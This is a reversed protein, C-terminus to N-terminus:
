FAWNIKRLILLSTFWKCIVVQLCNNRFLLTSSSPFFVIKEELEWEFPYTCCKPAVSEHQRMPPVICLVFTYDVIWEHLSFRSEGQVLLCVPFIVDTKLTKAYTNNHVLLIFNFLKGLTLVEKSCILCIGTWIHLPIEGTMLTVNAFYCYVM